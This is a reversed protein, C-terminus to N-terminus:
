SKEEMIRLCPAVKRTVRITFFRGAVSSVWTQDRPQSSLIRSLGLHIHPSTWPCLSCFPPPAPPQAPLPGAPDLPHENM